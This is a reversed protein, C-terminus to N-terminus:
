QLLHPEERRERSIELQLHLKGCDHCLFLSGEMELGTELSFDSFTDQLDKLTYDRIEDLQLRVPLEDDDAAKIMATKFREYDTPFLKKTGELM